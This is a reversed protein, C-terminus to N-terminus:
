TKLFSMAHNEPYDQRRSGIFVVGFNYQPLGIILQAIWAAVGGRVYPFTGECPILIDPEKIDHLIKMSKDM